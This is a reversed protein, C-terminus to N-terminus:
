KTEEETDSFFTYDRISVGYQAARVTKQSKHDLTPVILYDCELTLTESYSFGKARIMEALVRHEVCFQGSVCITKAVPKTTTKKEEIRMEQILTTLHKVESRLQEVEERLKIASQELEDPADITRHQKVEKDIMEEERSLDIFTTTGIRQIQGDVCPTHLFDHLLEEDDSDDITIM